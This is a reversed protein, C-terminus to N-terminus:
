RNFGKQFNVDSMVQMISDFNLDRLSYTKIEIRCLIARRSESAFPPFSQTPRVLDLPNCMAVAGALKCNQGEEGLYRVQVSCTHKLMVFTYTM